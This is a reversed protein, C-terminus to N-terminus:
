IPTNFVKIMLLYLHFAEIGFWTFTCLLSYHMLAAIFQCLGDNNYSALWEDLLFTLNLLFLASCLSQHITTSHDSKQKRLMIYMFLTVGLFFLSVGCGIYSIYTLAKLTSASLTINNPNMADVVSDGVVLNIIIDEEVVDVVLVGEVVDVDFVEVAPDVFCFEVVAVVATGEVDSSEVLGGVMVEVDNDGLGTEFTEGVWM